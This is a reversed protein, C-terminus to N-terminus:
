LGETPGHLMGGPTNVNVLDFGSALRSRDEDSLRSVIVSPKLPKLGAVRLTTFPNHQVSYPATPSQHTVATFAREPPIPLFFLSAVTGAIV